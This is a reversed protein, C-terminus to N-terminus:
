WHMIYMPSQAISCNHFRRERSTFIYDVSYLDRTNFLFWRRLRM